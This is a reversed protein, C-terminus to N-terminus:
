PAKSLMGLGGFPCPAEHISCDWEDIWAREKAHDISISLNCEKARYIFLDVPVATGSEDDRTETGLSAGPQTQAEGEIYARCMVEEYRKTAIAVDFRISGEGHPKLRLQLEFAESLLQYKTFDNGWPPPEAGPNPIPPASEEAPPASEPPPQGSGCAATAVAAGIVWAQLKPVTM